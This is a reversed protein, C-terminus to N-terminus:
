VRSGSHCGGGTLSNKFPWRVKSKVRLWNRTLPIRLHFFPLQPVQLPRPRAIESTWEEACDNRKQWLWAGRWM